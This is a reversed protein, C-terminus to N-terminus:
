FLDVSGAEDDAATDLEEFRVVRNRGTQKAHYLAKDARDILTTPLMGPPCSVYGISVTVQGVGPFLQREVAARFRELPPGATAEAHTDLLVLFEEGGFRFLSDTYRFNREMLRAFHILVEDGFLHGYTDNVQKFHDIDLVALWLVVDKNEAANQSATDFLTAFTQRNLLGTLQDRERSDMLRILNAYADIIQFAKARMVPDMPVRDIVILRLPGIEASIPVLVRGLGLGETDLANPQLTRIAELVGPGLERHPARHSVESFRRITVDELSIEAAPRDLRRHGFVELVCADAGPLQGRLHGIMGRTLAMGDKQRSMGMVASLQELGDFSM